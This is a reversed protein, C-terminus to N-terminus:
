RDPLLGPGADLPDELQEVECGAIASAGSATSSGVSARRSRRRRRRSRSRRRRRRHEVAEVQAIAAPRAPPSRRASRCRCTSRSAAPRASRRGRGRRPAADVAVVHAVHVRCESREGPRRRRRPSSGTRRCPARWCRRRGARVRGVGLDLRRGPDGCACSKMSRAAARSRCADDALAAEGQGAALPLPDRQGARDQLRGASGSGRRRSWRRRRGCRPPSGRRRQALTSAPRVVSSTAWRREVSCRASRTTTRSSPRTTSAPCARRAPRACRADVAAQQGPEVLVTASGTPSRISASAGRDHSPVVADAQLPSRRGVAGAGCPERGPRMPAGLM